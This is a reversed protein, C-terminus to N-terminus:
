FKFNLDFNRHCIGEEHMVTLVRLTDVCLMMCDVPSMSNFRETHVFSQLDQLECMENVLVFQEHDQLVKMSCYGYFTPVGSHESLMNMARLERAWQKAKRKNNRISDVTGNMVSIAVAEGNYTGHFVEKFGGTAFKSGIVLKQPDARM